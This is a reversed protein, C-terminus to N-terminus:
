PLAGPRLELGRGRALSIAGPAAPCTALQWVMIGFRGHGTETAMKGTARSSGWGTGPARRSPGGSM